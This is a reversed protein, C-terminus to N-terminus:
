QNTGLIGTRILFWRIQMKLRMVPTAFKKAFEKRISENIEPMDFQIAKVENNLITDYRNEIHSFNTGSGDTGHNSVRSKVPYITFKGQKFAEYCWRIAWSHIEGYIYADLLIPLDDGWKAFEHRKKLNFKFFPYDSVMWDVTNWRDKWTAWGWSCGRGSLYVDHEYNELAKIPFTYGSIAWINEKNKYYDLAGNMYALFDPAVELDDELVIVRGFKNIIETVGGIISAALGKNTDAKRIEVEAFNSNCAYQDLINRVEAVLEKDKEKKAQDSFIFLKTNKVEPLSNLKEITKRTHEPRNFVFLLVPASMLEFM